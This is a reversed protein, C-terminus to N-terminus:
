RTVPFLHFNCQYVRDPDPDTEMLALLRTRLAQIEQKARALGTPSLSLTLASIDREDKPISQLAETGLQVNAKLFNDLHVAKFAPDKKLTAPTPKYTGAPGKKLLGLSELLRISKRAEAVGIPPHLKKALASYDGKFDYFFLLERIVAHFWESYFEFRDKGILDPKVGKIALLRRYHETKEETSGAQDYRVLIDFYEAEADELKLLRTLKVLLNGSLNARGKVIDSFWGASTAKVQSVIFRHSFKVDQIKRQLYYDQLYRRYEVYAFIDIPKDPNTM